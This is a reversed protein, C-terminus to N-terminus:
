GAPRILEKGDAHICALRLRTLTRCRDLLDPDLSSGAEAYGTMFRHTMSELERGSRLALLDVHALLNGVDLEPPGVAADDLDILGVREGILIQEEYLDRHVVTSCPWPESLSSLRSRVAGAVAPSAAEARVALDRLEQEVTRGRLAAPNRGRWFRHWAGLAGGARLCARGDGSVLPGRLPRGPVETLVVTRISPEVGLVEPLLPEAPGRGLAALRAAVTPARESVYVKVIATRDAGTARLTRRRGPKHKLEELAVPSGLHGELLDHLEDPRLPPAALVTV